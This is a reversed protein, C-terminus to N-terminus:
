VRTFAVTSIQQGKKGGFEFTPYSIKDFYKFLNDKEFSAVLEEETWNCSTILFISPTDQNAIMATHIAAPYRARLTKDEALSIADYTGKDVVLSYKNLHDKTLQQEDFLDLVMLTVDNPDLDVDYQEFEQNIVNRALDLASSSYDVGTLNKFGRQALSVLLHGNGCGVDLVTTDEERGALTEEAWDAMKEASDEGFWCEGIDGTEEFNNTERDYVSDWYERTGLKSTPLEEESM